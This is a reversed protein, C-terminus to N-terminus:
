LSTRLSLSRRRLIVPSLIVCHAHLHVWDPVFFPSCINNNPPMWYSINLINEFSLQCDATQGWLWKMKECGIYDSNSAAVTLWKWLEEPPWQTWMRHTLWLVVIYIMHKKHFVLALWPSTVQLINHKTLVRQNLQGAGGSFDEDSAWVCFLRCDIHKSNTQLIGNTLIPYYIVLQREHGWM